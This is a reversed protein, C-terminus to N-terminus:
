RSDRHHYTLVHIQDKLDGIEWSLRGQLVSMQAAERAHQMGSVLWGAVFAIIASLMMGVLIETRQSIRPMKMSSSDLCSQARAGWDFM